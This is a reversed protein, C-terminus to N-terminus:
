MILHGLLSTTGGTGSTNTVAVRIYKFNVDQILWQINGSTSTFNQASDPYDSWNLRDASIQLKLNGASTAGGGYDLNAQLQAWRYKAMEVPVSFGNAAISISASIVIDETEKFVRSSM